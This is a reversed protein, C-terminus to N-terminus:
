WPFMPEYPVVTQPANMLVIAMVVALVLVGTVFIVLWLTDRQLVRWEQQHETQEAHWHRFWQGPHISLHM